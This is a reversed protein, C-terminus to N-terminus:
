TVYQSLEVVDEFFIKYFKRSESDPDQKLLELYKRLTSVDDKKLCFCLDAFYDQLLGGIFKMAVLKLHRDPSVLYVLARMLFQHYNGFNSEVMYILIDNEAGLGRGWALKGFLEKRFEWRLLVACRLFTLKAKMVVDPCSDALHFLLPVLAQFAHSKLAQRFKKGGSYIVDGYLFIAGGRVGEKEGSDLGGRIRWGGGGCWSCPRRELASGRRADGRRRSCGSM